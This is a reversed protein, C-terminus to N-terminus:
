GTVCRASDPVGGALIGVVRDMLVPEPVGAFVQELYDLPQLQRQLLARLQLADPARQEADLSVRLLLYQSHRELWLLPVGRCHIQIADDEHREVFQFGLTPRTEVFQIALRRLQLYREGSISQFALPSPMPPAPWQGLAATVAGFCLAVATWRYWAM